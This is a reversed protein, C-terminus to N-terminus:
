IPRPNLEPAKIPEATVPDIIARTHAAKKMTGRSINRVISSLAVWAVPRKRLPALM